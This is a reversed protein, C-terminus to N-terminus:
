SGREDLDSRISRMIMEFGDDDGTVGILSIGHSELLMELNLGIEDSEDATQTRTGDPVYEKTRRISYVKDYRTLDKLFEKYLYTLTEIDSIDALPCSLLGYYYSLFVPSDTVIVDITNPIIDEKSRQEVLIRLQDAASKMVWGRNLQDRVFEQVLEATIGESKCQAFVKAATTSKGSGPGGILAIRM